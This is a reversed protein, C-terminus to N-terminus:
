DIWFDPPTSEGITTCDGCVRNIFIIKPDFFSPEKYLKLINTELVLENMREFVLRPPLDEFVEDPIFEQCSYKFKPTFRDYIDLRDVFIRKSSVSSIDFIGLVLEDPDSESSINGTLFGPQVQSFISESESFNSLTQYFGHVERSQVFQKVLISYREAIEIQEQGIFRIQYGNIRDEGLATTNIIQLTKPKNEQYCIREGEPRDDSMYVIENDVFELKVVDSHFWMPAKIRYAEEYEYGYFTANGTPDFTDVLIAMGGIGDDNIRHEAYVNQITSKSPLVSTNSIYSRGDTTKISLQYELGSIAMFENESHYIGEGTDKFVYENGKNDKIIVEAGSENAPGEEEFRFTRSLRIEQHKLEDTIRANIILISEFTENKFEFEEVCNSFGISLLLLFFLKKVEKYIPITKIVPM